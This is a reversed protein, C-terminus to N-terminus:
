RDVETSAADAETTFLICVVHDPNIQLHRSGPTTPAVVGLEGISTIRGFEIYGSPDDGAPYIRVRMSPVTM